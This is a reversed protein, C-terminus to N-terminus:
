APRGQPRHPRTRRLSRSRPLWRGQQSLDAESRQGEAGCYGAGAARLCAPGPRRRRAAPGRSASPLRM